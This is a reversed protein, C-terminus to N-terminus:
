SYFHSLYFWLIKFNYWMLLSFPWYPIDDAAHNQISTTTLIEQLNEDSSTM